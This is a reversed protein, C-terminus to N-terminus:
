SRRWRPPEEGCRKVVGKAELDLRVRETWLNVKTIAVLWSPVNMGVAVHLAHIDVGPDQAPMVKLLAAKVANYTEADVHARYEPEGPRQVEVTKRKAKGSAKQKGAM